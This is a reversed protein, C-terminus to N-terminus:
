KASLRSEYQSVNTAFTFRSCTLLRLDYLCTVIGSYVSRAFHSHLLTKLKALQM